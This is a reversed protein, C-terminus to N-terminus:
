RKANVGTPLSQAAAPRHHMRILLSPAAREPAAHQDAECECQQQEETRRHRHKFPAQGDAEGPRAALHKLGLQQREDRGRLRVRVQQAQHQRLGRVAPHEARVRPQVGLDAVAVAPDYPARWGGEAEVERRRRGTRGAHALLADGALGTGAQREAAHDDGPLELVALDLGELEHDGLTELGPAGLSPGEPEAQDAPEPRERDGHEGDEGHHQAAHEPREPADLALDALHLGAPPLPERGAVRDLQLTHGRVEVGQQMALPCALLTIALAQGVQRM